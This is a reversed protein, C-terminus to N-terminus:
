ASSSARHSLSQAQPGSAPQLVTAVSRRARQSAAVFSVRACNCQQSIGLSAAAAAEVRAAHQSPSPSRTPGLEPWARALSSGPRRPQAQLNPRAESSPGARLVGVWFAASTRSCQRVPNPLGFAPQSAVAVSPHLKSAAFPRSSSPHLSRVAVSSYQCLLAKVLVGPPGPWLVGPRAGSECGSRGQGALSGQSEHDSSV